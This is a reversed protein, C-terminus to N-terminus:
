ERGVRVLFYSKKGKRIVLFREHLADEQRM